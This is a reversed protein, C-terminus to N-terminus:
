QSQILLRFRTKLANDLDAKVDRGAQAAREKKLSEVAPSNKHNNSM